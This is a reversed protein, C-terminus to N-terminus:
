RSYPNITEPMTKIILTIRPKITPIRKRSGYIKLKNKAEDSMNFKNKATLTKTEM